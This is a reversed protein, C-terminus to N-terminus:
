DRLQITNAMFNAGKHVGIVNVFDGRYLDKLRIDDFYKDVIETDRDVYVRILNKESALNSVKIEIFDNRSDVLDIEGVLSNEMTTTNVYAEAIDSQGEIYLEVEYGPNSPLSTATKGDVKIYAGPLLEYNEEKSSDKLRVKVLPNKNLRNTIQIVYGKVKEVVVDVYMDDALYGEREVDYRAVIDVKDTVRVDEPRSSKGDRDVETRNDAIIKYEEKNNGKILIEYDGNKGNRLKETKLVEGKLRLEYPSSNIEKLKGNVISLKIYDGNRINGLTSTKGDRYISTAGDLSFKETKLKDKELYEVTVQKSSVNTSVVAGEYEEKKSEARVSYLDKTKSDYKITVEQGKYLDSLKGPRGDIRVDTDKDLLFSEERNRSDRIVLIERGIEKTVRDVTGTLSERVGSPRVVEKDPEKDPKVSPKNNTVPNNLLYNNAKSMLTAMIERRLAQKPHFMGTGDGKKDLIGADLLVKIYRRDEPRISTVDKYDLVVVNMDKAKEELGVAKALLVSSAVKQIPKHYIDRAKRVDNETVIGKYLSISIAEKEWSATVKLERLLGEYEKLANIKDTSTPKTLRSFAALAEMFTMNGKPDFQGNGKGKLYGMKAMEEIYNYAWHSSPVDIFSVKAGYIPMSSMLIIGALFGSLKNKWNFRM